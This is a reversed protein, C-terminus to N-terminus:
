LKEYNLIQILWYVVINKYCCLDQLFIFLNYIQVPL